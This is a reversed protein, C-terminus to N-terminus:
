AVLVKKKGKNILEAWENAIIQVEKPAQTNYKGYLQTIQGDRYELTYLPTDITDSLRIFVITTRGKLHSDLYTSSGVCHHLIKGEVVLEHLSKPVLFKYGRIETEYNLIKKLRSEYEKREVERKTKNLLEVANDHAIKLDKPIILNETDVKVNLDKMVSLYDLYYTFNVKNKIVWNQFRVIGIGEPIKNIDRYDLYKEIGPVVKGQRQKIRKELEYNLFSRNSNKFYAKNEKLWKSNVTRMDVSKLWSKNYYEYKGFLIDEAFKDAHIKQLFEGEKRYKYLSSLNWLGWDKLKIYKLESITEIKSRYDNKYFQTGTYPSSIGGYNKTLGYFYKGKNLTTVKVHENNSFQEFNVLEWEITQKGDSVKSWFGYSQIEIRKSTVLVIAFSYFKDFFTLRSNKSLRKQVVECNKRDSALITKAKNSWKFTHINSYCWDFFAKPPKLKKEIYTIAERKM